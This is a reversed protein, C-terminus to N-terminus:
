TYRVAVLFNLDEDVKYETPFSFGLWELWRIHLENRPDVVNWLYDYPRAIEKIVKMSLKLFSMKNLKIDDTGLLWIDAASAGVSAIVDETPGSGFIVVPKGDKRVVRTIQSEDWAEQLTDRIDADPKLTRVERVDEARLHEALYDIDEATPEGFEIM